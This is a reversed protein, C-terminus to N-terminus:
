SIKKTSSLKRWLNELPGYAHSQLWWYSFLVQIAYVALAFLFYFYIPMTDFLGMGAGQFVFFAIMNQMLYNTFTMKGIWSFAKFVLGGKEYVYLLLISFSTFSMTTLVIWYYFSFYKSFSLQAINVGVYIGWLVLTLLLARLMYKKLLAKKESLNQFFGSKQLALGLLMCAFMIYHATVSYNLNLVENYYCGLFNFKFIDLWNTSRRFPEIGKALEDVASMDLTNIYATLFPALLLMLGSIIALKKIPLHIFLLFLLGLFAYDRLIDGDYFLSNIFAFIFLVLMRRILFGYVNNQQKEYIVGFGFGFLTFLLTWGKASFLIAEVAQIITALITNGNVKGEPSSGFVLYNSIVVVLLAWGRLIDISELRQQKQM